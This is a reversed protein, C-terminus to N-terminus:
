LPSQTLTQLFTLGWYHNVSFCSGVSVWGTNCRSQSFLNSSFWPQLTLARCLLETNRQMYLYGKRNLTIGRCLYMSPSLFSYVVRTPSKICFYFFYFFGTGCLSSFMVLIGERMVRILLNTNIKCSYNKVGDSAELFWLFSWAASFTCKNM